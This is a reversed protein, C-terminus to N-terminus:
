MSAFVVCKGSGLLMVRWKVAVRDWKNEFGDRGSGVAHSEVQSCGMRHMRADTDRGESM